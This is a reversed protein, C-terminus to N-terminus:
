NCGAAHLRLRVGEAAPDGPHALSLGLHGVVEVPIGARRHLSIGRLTAGERYVQEEGPHGGRLHDAQAQGDALHDGDEHPLPVVLEDGFGNGRLCHRVETSLHEVGSELQGGQFVTEDESRMRKDDLMREVSCIREDQAGGEIDLSCRALCPIIDNQDGGIAAQKARCLSFPESDEIGFRIECACSSASIQIPWEGTQGPPM